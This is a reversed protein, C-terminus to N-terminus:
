DFPLEQSGLWALLFCREAIAARLYHPQARMTLSLEIVPPSLRAVTRPLIADVLLPRPQSFRESVVSIMCLWTASIFDSPFSPSVMRQLSRRRATATALPAGRPM